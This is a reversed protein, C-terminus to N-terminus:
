RRLSCVSPSVVAFLLAFIMAGYFIEHYICKLILDHIIWIRIKWARLLSVFFNGYKFAFALFSLLFFFLYLVCLLRVGSLLVNYVDDTCLVSTM